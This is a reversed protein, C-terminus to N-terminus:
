TAGRYNIWGQSAPIPGSRWSSWPRTPTAPWTGRSCRAELASPRRGVSPPTSAEFFKSGSDPM